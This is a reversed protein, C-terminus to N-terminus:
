FGFWQPNIVMALNVLLSFYWYLGNLFRPASIQQRLLLMRLYSNYFVLSGAGDSGYFFSHEFSYSGFWVLVFEVCGIGGV